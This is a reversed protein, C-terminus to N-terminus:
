TAEDLTKSRKYCGRLEAAGELTTFDITKKKEELQARLFVVEDKSLDDDSSYMYAKESDAHESAMEEEGHESAMDEDLRQKLAVQVKRLKSAIAVVTETRGASSACSVQHRMSLDQQIMDLTVAIHSARKVVHSLTPSSSLTPPNHSSLNSIFHFLNLLAIKQLCM